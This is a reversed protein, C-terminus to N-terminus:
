GAPVRRRVFDHGTLAQARASVAARIDERSRETQPRAILQDVQARAQALSLRLANLDRLAVQHREAWAKGPKADSLVQQCADFAADTRVRAKQLKDRLVPDGSSSADGLMGNMPGRERSVMEAAVLTVRLKQVAQRALRAREFQRWELGVLRVVGVLVVLVLGVAILRFWGRLTLAHPSPAPALM